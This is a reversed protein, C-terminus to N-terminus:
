KVSWCESIERASHACSSQRRPRLDPKGQVSHRPDVIAIKPVGNAYLYLMVHTRFPTLRCHHDRQATFESAIIVGQPPNKADL